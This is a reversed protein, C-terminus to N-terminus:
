EELSAAKHFSEELERQVHGSLPQAFVHCDPGRSPAQAQGLWRRECPLHTVWCQAPGGGCAAERHKACPVALCGQAAPGTEKLIICSQTNLPSRYSPSIFASFVDGMHLLGAPDRLRETCLCLLGLSDRELSM